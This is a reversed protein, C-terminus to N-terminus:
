SQPEGAASNVGHLYNDMREARDIGRQIYAAAESATAPKSPPIPAKPCVHQGTRGASMTQTCAKCMAVARHSHRHNGGQPIPRVWVRWNPIDVVARIGERPWKDKHTLGFLAKIDSTTAVGYKGPIATPNVPRRRM